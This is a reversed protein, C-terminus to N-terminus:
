RKRKKKNPYHFPKRTYAFEGFKYGCHFKTIKLFMSSNGKHVKLYQHRFLTTITIKRLNQKSIHRRSNRKRYYLQLHKIFYLKSLHVGKKSSRSMFNDIKKQM